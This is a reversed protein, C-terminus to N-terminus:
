KITLINALADYSNIASEAIEKIRLTEKARITKEINSDIDAEKSTEVCIDYLFAFDKKESQRIIRGIRQVYERPNTSSAMLIGCNATPIDIGEDLCKIAILIKYEKEKFKKIIYERESINGFRAENTTGEDQTLKHFVIHRDSLIRAVEEIQQPSVFIITDEIPRKIEIEDLIDSLATLKETANKIINARKEILREYREAIETDNDKQRYLKIILQTLNTYEKSENDNLQVHKIYYYYNVLFHKGTLPNTERLADKLSFEYHADAFYKKLLCTGYDDFWRSPTASLGIRYKYCSLLASRLKPAGLWHVEDGIFVIPLNKITDTHITEIFKKSSATTHTTYIIAYDAFNSGIKLLIQSLQQKWHPNTGDIIASEDTDIGLKEVEKKWQVSLTNQPCAVIIVLKSLKRILHEIGAIATRTKGTGTAMEFLMQYNNAEWKKLAENQYPFLSINTDFQVSACKHQKYKKISISEIDFDKSYEIMCKRVATPLDFVHVNKRTNSWFNEFRSNDSNFYKKTGEDWEKFVKFEEDNNIWASASENISGSFSIRHGDLDTLIGVKQHFIGETIGDQGSFLKESEDTVIALKIELMNSGLMWGLAKVHNEVFETEIYNLNLGLEEATLSAPNEVARKIIESDSINLRPSAILRMKGGNNIFRALGRSAVALSSSSFFGAIRDYRVSVGLVADYFDAIIDDVSSEYCSKINLDTFNM